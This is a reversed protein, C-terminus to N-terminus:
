DARTLAVTDNIIIKTVRSIDALRNFTWTVSSGDMSILGYTSNDVFGGGDLIVYLSGDDYEIALYDIEDAHKLGLAASDIRIGIPSLRAADAGGNSFAAGPLDAPAVPISLRQREKPMNEGEKWPIYDGLLVDVSGLAGGSGNVYYGCIFLKTDTSKESDLYTKGGFTEMYMFVTEGNFRLEGNEFTEWGTIGAPNELSYYILGAGTQPDYLNAEVSLTYNEWTAVADYGTIYGGILEDALTEDVEVREWAPLNTKLQGNEEYEVIGEGSAVGKDGFFSQF